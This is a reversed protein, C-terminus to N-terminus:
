TSRGPDSSGPTVEIIYTCRRELQGIDEASAEHAYLDAPPAPATVYMVRSRLKAWGYFTPVACPYRDLWRLLQPFPTDRPRLEDLVVTRQGRYGFWYRDRPQIICNDTDSEWATRTKGSGTPGWLWIVTPRFDRDGIYDAELAERLRLQLHSPRVSRIWEARPTGAELSDYVAAIDARAGPRRNDRNLWIREKLCYNGADACKAPEWHARPLLKRLQSLRYARRWTIFGQFHRAGTTPATEEGVVIRTVDIERLFSKEQRTPDHLTFVWSKSPADLHTRTRKRRSSLVGDMCKRIAVPASVATTFRSGSLSRNPFRFVHIHFSSTM